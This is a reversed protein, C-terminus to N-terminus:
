ISLAKRLGNAMENLSNSFNNVPIKDIEFNWAKLLYVPYKVKGNNFKNIFYERLVEHSIKYNNSEWSDIYVKELMSEQRLDWSDMLGYITLINKLIFETQLSYNISETYTIKPLISNGFFNYQDYIERCAPGNKWAEFSIDSSLEKDYGFALIAGYCYFTLKQLKLHTLPIHYLPINIQIWTALKISELM